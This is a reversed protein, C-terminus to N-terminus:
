SHELWKDLKAKVADSMKDWGTKLHHELEDLKHKLKARQEAADKGSDTKLENFKKQLESKKAEIKAKLEKRDDMDGNPRQVPLVMVQEPPTEPPQLPLLEV